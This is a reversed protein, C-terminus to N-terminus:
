WLGPLRVGLLATFYEERSLREMESQCKTCILERNLIALPHHTRLGCSPCQYYAKNIQHLQYCLIEIWERDAGKEAASCSYEQNFLLPNKAQMKTIWYRERTYRMEYECEELILMHPKQGRSILKHIWGYLNRNEIEKVHQFDYGLKCHQKFRAQPDISQGVYKCEGKLKKGYLGYIYARAPKKTM